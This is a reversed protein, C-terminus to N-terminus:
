RTRDFARSLGESEDIIWEIHEEFVQRAAEAQLMESSLTQDFHDDATARAAFDGYTSNTEAIEQCQRWAHHALVAARVRDGYAAIRDVRRTLGAHGADLLRDQERLARLVSGDAARERRADRRVRLRYQERLDTAIRWEERLLLPLLARAGTTRGLDDAGERVQDIAVQVRRLQLAEPPLRNEELPDVGLERPLLYRDRYALELRQDRSGLLTVVVTGAGGALIGFLALGPPSIFRIGVLDGGARLLLIVAILEVLGWLLAPVGVVVTFVAVLACGGGGDSSSTGFYILAFNFLVLTFLALFVSTTPYAFAILLSLFVWGVAVCILAIWDWSPM